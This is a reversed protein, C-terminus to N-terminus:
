IKLKLIHTILIYNYHNIISKDLNVSFKGWFIRFNHIDFKIHSM